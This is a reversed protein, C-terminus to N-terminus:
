VHRFKRVKKHASSGMLMFSFSPAYLGGGGPMQGRKDSTRIASKSPVRQWQLVEDATTPFLEQYAPNASSSRCARACWVLFRNINTTIPRRSTSDKSEVNRFPQEPLLYLVMLCDNSLGFGPRVCPSCCVHVPAEHIIQALVVERANEIAQDVQAM